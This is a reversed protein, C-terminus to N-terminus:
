FTRLPVLYTILTKVPPRVCVMRGRGTRNGRVGKRGRRIGRMERRTGRKREGERLKKPPSSNSENEVMSRRMGRWSM